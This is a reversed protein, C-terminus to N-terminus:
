EERGHIEIEESGEEKSKIMDELFAFVAEKATVTTYAHATHGAARCPCGCKSTIGRTILTNVPLPSPVWNTAKKAFWRRVRQWTIVTADHLSDMLAIGKVRAMTEDPREKFLNFVAYGGASHAVFLIPENVKKLITDWVYLIHNSPTENGRIWKLIGSLWGTNENPNMLLVEYGEEKAQKLYEFMAGININDNIIIRRAWQGISTAGHNSAPSHCINPLSSVCRRHRGPVLVLLPKTSTLADKSMFIKSKAENEDDDVPIQMRLLGVDSELREEVHKDIVAGLSEYHAQNYDKDTPRVNFEFREDSDIKRLEGLTNFHYGFEPLTVPFWFKRDSKSSSTNSTM